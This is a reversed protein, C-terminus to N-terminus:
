FLSDNRSASYAIATTAQRRIASGQENSFIPLGQKGPIECHCYQQFFNANLRFVMKLKTYLFVTNFWHFVSPDDNFIIIDLWKDINFNVYLNIVVNWYTSLLYKM